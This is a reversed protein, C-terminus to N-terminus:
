FNESLLASDLAKSLKIVTGLQPCVDGSEIHKLMKQDFGTLQSLQAISLGKKERVHQIRKGIQECPVESGNEIKGTLDEFYDVNIPPTAHNDAM